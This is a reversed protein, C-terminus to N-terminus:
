WLAIWKFMLLIWMLQGIQYDYFLLLVHHLTDDDQRPSIQVLTLSGLSCKCPPGLCFFSAGMSPFVKHSPRSRLPLSHSGRRHSAKRRRFLDLRSFAATRSLSSRLSITLGIFRESRKMCLKEQKGWRRAKYTRHPGSRLVHSLQRICVTFSAM